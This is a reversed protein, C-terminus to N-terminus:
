NEKQKKCLDVVYLACLAVTAVGFVVDAAIVTIEWWPFTRVIRTDSTIGNMTNSNAFTYLDYKLM